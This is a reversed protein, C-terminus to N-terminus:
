LTLRDPIELYSGRSKQKVAEAIPCNELSVRKSPSTDMNRVSFERYTKSPDHIRYKQMPREFV